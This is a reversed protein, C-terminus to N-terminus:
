LMPLAFGLGLCAYVNPASGWQRSVLAKMVGVGLDLVM